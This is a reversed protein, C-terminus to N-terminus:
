LAGRIRKLLGASDDPTLAQSRMKAYRQLMISVEAADSVLLSGRQGEFYGLWRHDRTEALHMPGNIGAHVEQRLPMIQLEVHHPESIELLHDIQRKTVETGGTCRELVSQEIIGSYEVLPHTSLLAKRAMRGSVQREIQEEDLSPPVSRIVARAYEETQLPGPVLRNEYSWLATAQEEIVAWQRFWSALGPRRALHRAAGRLAGFADLVDEARAVFDAPPFRRGQEISAVTQVSYRVRPALEEQTLRARKRFAKVVAGFAKLSETPEPEGGTCSSEPGGAEDVTM